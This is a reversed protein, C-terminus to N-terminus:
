RGELEHRAWDAGIISVVARISSDAARISSNKLPHPGEVTIYPGGQCFFITENELAPGKHINMLTGRGKYTLSNELAGILSCQARLVSDVARRFSGGAQAFLPISFM